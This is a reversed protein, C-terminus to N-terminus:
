YALFSMSRRESFLADFPGDEGREARWDPASGKDYAALGSTSACRVAVTVACFM